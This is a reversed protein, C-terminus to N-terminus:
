ALLTLVAPAVAVVAPEDADGPLSGLPEGDGGVPVPGAESTASLEVRTGRLVTVESRDVHSGDYVTPLARVLARKSAAEVVVVDLLGDAVDAAPAIKMGKGYFSSNAVVVMAADYDHATGDVAVRVHVPRYTLLSRVAALPYQLRRPVRRMRAVMAAARADVGAYVSGAVLLAEGASGPGPPPQWSLLDVRRPAAELLLAAQGAPDDPVGLMRAFDNGRGAPVLGLTGGLRSVEGALSALMGDGGVSVVVRGAAVAEAVLARTALPGPSYTVEVEAAAERLLRAVPVVAGPAAGGGAVPNVLFTFARAGSATGSM